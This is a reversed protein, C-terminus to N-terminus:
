GYLINWNYFENLTIVWILHWSARCIRAAAAPPHRRNRYSLSVPAVFPSSSSNPALRPCNRADSTRPSATRCPRRAGTRRAIRARPTRRAAQPRATWCPPPATPQQQAPRLRLGPAGRRLHARAARCYSRHGARRRCHGPPRRAAPWHRAANRGAAAAALHRRRCNVRIQSPAIRYLSFLLKVITEQSVNLRAAPGFM